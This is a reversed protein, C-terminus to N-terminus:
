RTRWRTSSQAASRRGCDRPEPRARGASGQRASRAMSQAPEPASGGTAGAVGLRAAVARAFAEIQSARLPLRHDAKTGTNRRRARSPTSVTADARPRGRASAAVCVRPCADFARPVPASSTPTSRCSSTLRRSRTSRTSTSASRWAAARARTTGASRSGSCGNRGRSGSSFSTSRAASRRRRSRRPSSGSAVAKRSKSPLWSRAIALAFASFPRIDGLNTLTQSRDPITSVSSRPRPLSIPPAAARRIIPIGKLRPRAARTVRSWCGSVRAREDDDGDRLVAAKGPVLEEPQRVYPVLEEPQRTCASVGALALSAGM